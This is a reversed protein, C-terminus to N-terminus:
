KQEMNDFKFSDLGFPKNNGLNGSVRKRKCTIAANKISRPSTITYKGDLEIFAQKIDCEIVGENAMISLERTWSDVENPYPSRQLGTVFASFLKSVIGNNVDDNHEEEIFHSTNKEDTNNVGRDEEEIPTNLPRNIHTTLADVESSLPPNLERQRPTLSQPQRPTLSTNVGIDDNTDFVLRYLSNKQSGDERFKHHIEVYGLKQLAKLDMSVSQKSKNLLKGITNLKPFCWGDKDGFIALAALTRLQANSIRLDSIAKAQLISFRANAM